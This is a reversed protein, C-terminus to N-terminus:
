RDDVGISALLERDPEKLLPSFKIDGWKMGRRMHHEYYADRARPAVVVRVPGLQDLQRALQYHHALALERELRAGTDAAEDGSTVCCYYSPADGRRMPVLFAFRDGDLVRTLADHVFGAHLKEGVLDSVDNSRGVFRLCPAQRHRGVVDVRDGIRYRLLGGRQSLILEYRRGVVAEDIRYLRGGDDELEFFVEHLLPVPAPAAILPVTMPAETALLGKGQITVGPLDRELRRAFFAATGDTWCSVLKLEPWLATWPAGSVLLAARSATMPAFRFCRGEATVEGRRLDTLLAGRHEAIFDLLTTFYTPNWVSVVELAAEAVLACALVRRYTHPDRLRTVGSPAVLRSGLLAGLVPSLYELDDDLGVRTGDGATEAGGFPQSISFFVKGTRFAPGHRLLDHLWVQVLAHFSRLLAPTYPIYKTRGSSGSTKEYVSVRGPSIVNGGQATQREIWPALQEYTAIPVRRAFDRYTEGGRLGFSRGYATTASARTISALLRDQAARPRDLARELRWAAPALALAGVARTAAAGSLRAM